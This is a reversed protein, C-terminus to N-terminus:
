DVKYGLSSLIPEAERLAENRWSPSWHRYNGISPFFDRREIVKGDELGDDHLKDNFKLVSDEYAEGLFAFVGRLVTEPDAVLGEYTIEHCRQRNGEKFAIIKKNQERWYAAAICHHDKKGSYTPVNKIERMTGGLVTAMSYAVDLGHRYIVIYRPRGAFVEDILDLCDIYHPTKDAWRPKDHAQAYAQFFGSAFKRTRTIVAARSFGMSDLGIMGRRHKLLELLPLLFHSEPPCAIRSHSDVIRRLLSTGSRQCGIIFIPDFSQAEEIESVIRIRNKGRGLFARYIKRM